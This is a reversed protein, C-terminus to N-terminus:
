VPVLKFVVLEVAVLVDIVMIFGDVVVLIRDVVVIVLEWPHDMSFVHASILSM